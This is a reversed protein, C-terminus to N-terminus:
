APTAILEEPVAQEAVNIGGAATRARLVLRELLKLEEEADRLADELTIAYQALAYSTDPSHRTALILLTEANPDKNTCQARAAYACVRSWAAYSQANM